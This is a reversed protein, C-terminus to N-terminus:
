WKDKVKHYRRKHSAEFKAESLHMPKEKKPTSNWMMSLFGIVYVLIYIHELIKIMKYNTKLILIELGGLIHKQINYFDLKVLKEM